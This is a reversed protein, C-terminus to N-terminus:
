TNENMKTCKITFLFIKENTIATSKEIYVPNYYQLLSVQKSLIVVGDTGTM